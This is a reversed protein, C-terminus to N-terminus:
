KRRKAKSKKARRQRGPQRSDYTELVRSPRGTRIDPIDTRPMSVSAGSPIRAACRENRAQPNLVTGGMAGTTERLVPRANPYLDPDSAFYTPEYGPGCKSLGLARQGWGAAFAANGMIDEPNNSPNRYDEYSIKSFDGGFQFWQNIKNLIDDAKNYLRIVEAQGATHRMEGPAAPIEIHKIINQFPRLQNMPVQTIVKSLRPRLYDAWLGKISIGAFMGNSFANLAEHLEDYTELDQFRYIDAVDVELPMFVQRRMGWTFMEPDMTESSCHEILRAACADDAITTNTLFSVPYIGMSRSADMRSNNIARGRIDTKNVAEQAFGALALSSPFRTPAYFKDNRRIWGETQLQQLETSSLPETLDDMTYDNSTGAIPCTNAPRFEHAVEPTRPDDRIMIPPATQDTTLAPRKTIGNKDVQKYDPTFDPDLARDTASKCRLLRRFSFGRINRVIQKLLADDAQTGHSTLAIAEEHLHALLGHACDFVFMSATFLEVRRLFSMSSYARGM